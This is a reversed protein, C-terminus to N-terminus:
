SVLRYGVGRINEISSAGLEQKLRNIYVRIAGDSISENASWLEDVIMEKTVVQAAHRILLALLMYEKRSLDLEKKDYFIRQHEADLCLKEVCTKRKGVSRRLLAEIRLVLEDTDFPKRMYDDAGSEFGQRLVAKDQHSTLYITPTADGARRLEDLLTLGNILPVNIDFLYLDFKQVYSLDLAEQGNRCLTVEFGEEELTDQISEGFLMDDELLLIKPTM